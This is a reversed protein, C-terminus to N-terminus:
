SPLQIEPDVRGTYAFPCVRRTGRLGQHTLFIFIHDFVRTKRTQGSGHRTFLAQPSMKTGSVLKSSERVLFGVKSCSRELILLFQLQAHAILQLFRSTCIMLKM